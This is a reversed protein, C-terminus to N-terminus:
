YQILFHYSLWGCFMALAFKPVTAITLRTLSTANKYQVVGLAEMVCFYIVWIYWFVRDIHTGPLVVAISM